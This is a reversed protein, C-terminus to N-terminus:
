KTILWLFIGYVVAGGMTLYIRQFFSKISIKATSTNDDTRFGEPYISKELSNRTMYYFGDHVLPFVCAFALAAIPLFYWRALFLFPLLLAIVVIARQLTFLPHLDKMYGPDDSDRYAFLYGERTGEILSFLIWLAPTLIFILIDM